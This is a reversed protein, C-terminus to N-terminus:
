PTPRFSVSLWALIEAVTCEPTAPPSSGPVPEIGGILNPVGLRLPEQRDHGPSVWARECGPLRHAVLGFRPAIWVEGPGPEAEPAVVRLGRRRALVRLLPVLSLRRPFWLWSAGPHAQVLNALTPLDRLHLSLAAIRGSRIQPTAPEVGAWKLSAGSRVAGWVASSLADAPGDAWATATKLLGPFVREFRNWRRNSAPGCRVAAFATPIGRAALVSLTSPWAEAELFVAARVRRRALFDSVADPHDWPLPFSPLDPRDSRLRALGSPTTATLVLPIGDLAAALRLLGKAEGLSAAHLWVSDASAEPWPGLRDSALLRVAPRLGSTTATWWRPPRPTM